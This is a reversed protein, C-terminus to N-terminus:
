STLKFHENYLIKKINLSMNELTFYEQYIAKGKNLMKNYDNDSISILINELDKPDNIIISFDEWNLLKDFPYTFKDSIIVPVSNLQLIEYIRFSQIINGRPCLSFKSRKTINKFEEFKDNTIFPSWSKM